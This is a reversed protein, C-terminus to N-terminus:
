FGLIRTHPSGNCFMLTTFKLNRPDSELESSGAKLNLCKDLFCKYVQVYLFVYFRCSMTSSNKMEGDVFM